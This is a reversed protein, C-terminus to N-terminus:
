VVAAPYLKCVLSSSALALEFRVESITKESPSLAVLPRNQRSQCFFRNAAANFRAVSADLDDPLPTALAYTAIM